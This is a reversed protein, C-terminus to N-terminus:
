SIKPKRNVLVIGIAVLALAILLTPYLREGLILWSFFVGFLPALFGFAAMDSAPYVSLVWFWVMFGISVVVIVQFAFIAGIVPTFDRILDGTMFAIPLMIVASVSLQYLLQMEPTSRSLATTRALIAIGAWFMSAIICLVDGFLADDSAPDADYLLALAVGSAALALGLIRVPTLREGPILFHAAIAVWFPMTYFFVSARSVSTYELSIFLLMFETAFFTGCLIGPWFSGDTVSLIKKRFLAYLLVPLFACLSRMGAQFVPQMGSNVIKVLVQNLGLLASFFVLITAGFADIKDKRELLLTGHNVPVIFWDLFDAVHFRFSPCRVALM